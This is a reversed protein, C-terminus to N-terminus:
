TDSGSTSLTRTDEGHESTLMVSHQNDLYDLRFKTTTFPVGLKNKEVKLSVWHGVEQKDGGTTKYIKNGVNKFLKISVDLTHKWAWSGSPKMTAPGMGFDARAQNICVVACHSEYLLPRLKAEFHSIQRAYLGIASTGVENTAVTMPTFKAITDIIILDYDNIHSLIHEVVAELQSNPLYDVRGMDVGMDILRQKNLAFETDVYLAKQKPKLSALTRALLYSKGVGPVGWIETIRKIGWGGIAEDVEPVGTSLFRVEPIDKLTGVVVGTEKKKVM